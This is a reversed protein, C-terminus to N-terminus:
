FAARSAEPGGIRQSAEPGLRKGLRAFWSISKKSQTSMPVDKDLPQPQNRRQVIPQFPDAFENGGAIWAWMLVRPGSDPRKSPYVSPPGSAGVPTFGSNPLLPEREGHRDIQEGARAVKSWYLCDYGVVVRTHRTFQFGLNLDLEPVVAFNDQSYHGINTSQALLGGAFTTNSARRILSGRQATSISWRTRPAWPSAPFSM